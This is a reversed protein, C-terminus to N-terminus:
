LNENGEVCGECFLLHLTTLLKNGSALKRDVLTHLQHRNLHGLWQHWLDVESLNESVMSAEDILVECKLQGSLSGMGQLTGKPGRIWCTRQSFQVM